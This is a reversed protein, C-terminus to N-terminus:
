AIVNNGTPPLGQGQVPVRGPFSFNQQSNELCSHVSERVNPFTPNNQRHVRECM